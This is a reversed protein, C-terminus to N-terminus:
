RLVDLPDDGAVVSCEVPLCATGAAFSAPTVNCGRYRPGGDSLGFLGVGNCDVTALDDWGGDPLTWCNPLVCPPTLRGRRTAVNCWPIEGGDPRAHRFGGDPLLRLEDLGGDANNCERRQCDHLRFLFADDTSNEEDGGDVDEGADLTVILSPNLVTRGGDAEAYEWVVRAIRHITGPRFTGYGNNRLYNRTRPSIKEPCVAVWRDVRESAAGADRLEAMTVDPPQRTTLVYTTGGITLLGVVMMM